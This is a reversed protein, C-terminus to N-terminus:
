PSAHMASHNPSATTGAAALVHCRPRRRARRAASDASGHTGLSSSAAIYSLRTLPCAMRTDAM